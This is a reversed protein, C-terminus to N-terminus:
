KSSPNLIISHSNALSPEHGFKLKVLKVSVAEKWIEIDEKNKPKTPYGHATLEEDSATLPNFSNSHSSIENGKNTKLQKNTSYVKKSIPTKLTKKTNKYIVITSFSFVVIAFFGYFLKRNM